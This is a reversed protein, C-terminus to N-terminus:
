PRVPTADATTTEVAFEFVHDAGAKVERVVGSRDPRRLQPPFPPDTPADAPAALAVRYWGPPVPGDAARITFTGDAATAARLPRGTGGRDPDPAFVVTGNAVPEGQFTLRGRVTTEKPPASPSCGGFSAVLGAGAALSVLAVLLRM